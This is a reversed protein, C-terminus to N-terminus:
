MRNFLRKLGHQLLCLLCRLCLVIEMNLWLFQHCPHRIFDSYYAVLSRGKYEEQGTGCRADRYEYTERM